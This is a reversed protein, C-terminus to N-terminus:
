VWIPEVLNINSCQPLVRSITKQGKHRLHSLKLQFLSYFSFPITPHLSFIDLSSQFCISSLM